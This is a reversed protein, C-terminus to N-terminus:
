GDSLDRMYNLPAPPSPRTPDPEGLRLYHARRDASYAAANVAAERTMRVGRAWLAGGSARYVTWAWARATENVVLVLGEGTARHGGRRPEPRFRWEGRPIGDPWIGPENLVIAPQGGTPVADAGRLKAATM